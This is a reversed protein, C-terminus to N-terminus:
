IRFICIFVLLDMGARLAVGPPSFQQVNWITFVDNGRASPCPIYVASLGNDNGVSITQRLSYDDTGAEFHLNSCCPINQIMNGNGHHTHHAKEECCSVKGMGTLAVSHLKGGCYHFTAM